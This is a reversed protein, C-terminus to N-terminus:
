TQVKHDFPCTTYGGAIEMDALVSLKAASIQGMQNCRSGITRTNYSAQYRLTPCSEPGLRFIGPGVAWHGIDAAGAFGSPKPWSKAVCLHESGANKGNDQPQGLVIACFTSRPKYTCCGRNSCGGAAGPAKTSAVDCGLNSAQEVVPLRCRSGPRRAPRGGM